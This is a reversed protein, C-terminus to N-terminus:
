FYSLYKGELDFVLWVAGYRGDFRAVLVEERTKQNQQLWTDYKDTAEYFEMREYFLEQREKLAEKLQPQSRYLNLQAHELIKEEIKIRNIEAIVEANQELHAYVIPPKEDSYQKLINESSLSGGYHEMIATIVYEDILVIAVPRQSYTAYVGYALAGFQIVMITVLDFVIEKRSKSLDFILFTIFPGLVLDVAAVLRIGQWGGDVSFYPEPYWNYYIQYVLYVFVVLSLSMHIATAKLKTILLPKTFRLM